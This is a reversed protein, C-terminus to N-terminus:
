YAIFLRGLYSYKCPLDKVIGCQGAEDGPVFLTRAADSSFTNVFDKLNIFLTACESIIYLIAHITLALRDKPPWFLLQYLTRGKTVRRKSKECQECKRCPDQLLGVSQSQQEQISEEDPDPTPNYPELYERLERDWIKNGAIFGLARLTMQIAEYYTRTLIASAWTLFAGSADLAGDEPSSNAISAVLAASVKISIAILVRAVIIGFVRMGDHDSDNERQESDSNKAFSTNIHKTSAASATYILSALAVAAASLVVSLAYSFQSTGLTPAPLHVDRVCQLEEIIPSIEPFPSDHSISPSGAPSVNPTPVIAIPGSPSSSPVVSPSPSLDPPSTSPLSAVDSISPQASPLDPLGPLLQANTVSSLTLLIVCLNSYKGTNAVM